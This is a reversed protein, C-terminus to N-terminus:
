NKARKERPPSASRLRMFLFVSLALLVILLVLMVVAVTIFTTKEICTEERQNMQESGGNAEPINIYIQASVAQEGTQLDDPNDSTARRKRVPLPSCQSAINCTTDTSTYCFEVECTIMMTQVGPQVHEWTMAELVPLRFIRDPCPDSAPDVIFSTSSNVAIPLINAGCYNEIFYNSQFGPAANVQQKVMCRKAKVGFTSIGETYNGTKPQCSFDMQLHYADGLSLPNSSNVQSNDAAKIVKLALDADSSKNVIHIDGITANVMQYIDVTDNKCCKLAYYTDYYSNFDPYREAKIVWYACDTINDYQGGCASPGANAKVEISDSLTWNAGSDGAVTPCVTQNIEDRSTDFTQNVMAVLRDIPDGGTKLRFEMHLVQPDATNNLKCLYEAQQLRPGIANVFTWHLTLLVVAAAPTLRVVM